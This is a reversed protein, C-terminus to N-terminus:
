YLTDVRGELFFNDRLDKSLHGILSSLRPLFFFVPLMLLWTVISQQILKM